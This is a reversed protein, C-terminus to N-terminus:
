VYPPKVPAARRSVMLTTLPQFISNTSSNSSVIFDLRYRKQKADDLARQVLDHVHFYVDRKNETVIM